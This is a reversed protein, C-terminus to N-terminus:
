QSQLMVVDSYFWNIGKALNKTDHFRENGWLPIAARHRGISNDLTLRLMQPQSIKQSSVISLERNM